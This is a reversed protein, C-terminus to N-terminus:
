SVQACVRRGPKLPGNAVIEGGEPDTLCVVRKFRQSVESPDEPWSVQDVVVAAWDGRDCVRELEEPTAAWAVPRQPLRRDIAQLFARRGSLVLVPSGSALRPDRNRSWRTLLAASPEDLETAALAHPSNGPAPTLLAMTEM